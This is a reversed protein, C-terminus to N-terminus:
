LDGPISRAEYQINKFIGLRMLNDVTAQYQENNFIQGPVIEVERDIVYTQTKLVDDTPKRRNGKQKTVMKRVEIKRVIGEVVSINLTGNEDVSMDSLNVLTYGKNNYAELIKDRDAELNNYNQIDGTKSSM